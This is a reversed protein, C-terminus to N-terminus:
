SPTSRASRGALSDRGLTVNDDSNRRRVHLEAGQGDDRPHRALERRTHGGKAEGGSEQM